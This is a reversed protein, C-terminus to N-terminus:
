APEVVVTLPLTAPIDTAPLPTIVWTSNMTHCTVRGDEHEVMERVPTSVYLGTVEVPEVEDESQKARSHRIVRLTRGVIPGEVMYGKLWYSMPLPGKREQAVKDLRVLQGEAIM